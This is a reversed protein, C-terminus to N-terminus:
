APERSHVFGTRSPEQVSFFWRASADVQAFERSQLRCTVVPPNACGAAQYEGPTELFFEPWPGSKSSVCRRSEPRTNGISTSEPPPSKAASSGHLAPVGASPSHARRVHTQARAKRRLREPHIQAVPAGRRVARELLNAASTAKGRHSSRTRSLVQKLRRVQNSLRSRVGRSAIEM